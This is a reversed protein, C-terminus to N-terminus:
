KKEQGLLSTIISFLENESLHYGILCFGVDQYLFQAYLYGKNNSGYQLELGDILCTNLSEAIVYDLSPIADKKLIIRLSQTKDKTMYDIENQDCYIEEDKQYIGYHNQSSDLILDDLIAHFIDLNYYNTLAHKDLPIFDEQSLPTYCTVDLSSNNQTQYSFYLIGTILTLITLEITKKLYSKNRLMKMQNLEQIRCLANSAMEQDNKM